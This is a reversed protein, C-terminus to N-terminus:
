VQLAAFVMMEEETCEIEELLIAWRAQEYLQTLRVADTQCTCILTLHKM